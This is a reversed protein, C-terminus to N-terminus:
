RSAILLAQRRSRLLVADASSVDLTARTKVVAAGVAARWKRIRECLAVNSWQVIPKSGCEAWHFLAADVGRVEAFARIAVELSIDYERQLRVLRAANGCRRLVNDPILLAQAFRDCFAEEQPGGQRTRRPTRGPAREYFLTHGLEHAVRFRTRQRAVDSRRLATRAGWGSSPTPDVSVRFQNNAMPILLAECGGAGTALDTEVVYAGAANTFAALARIPADLKHGLVERRVRVAAAPAIDVNPEIVFALPWGRSSEGDARDISQQM